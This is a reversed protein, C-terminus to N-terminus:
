KEDLARILADEDVIGGRSINILCATKKRARLENEGIM